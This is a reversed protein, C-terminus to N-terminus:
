YIKERKIEGILYNFIKEFDGDYDFLTNKRIKIGKGIRIKPLSPEYCGEILIIDYFGIKNLISVINNIDFKKKFIIDTEINSMFIIANCGVEGFRYTDKGETDLSIDKNTM